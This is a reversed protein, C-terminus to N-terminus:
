RCAPRTRGPRCPPRRKRWTNGPRRRRSRSCCTRAGPKWRGQRKKSRRSRNPRAIARLSELTAQWIRQVRADEGLGNFSLPLGYMVYRQWVETRFETQMVTGAPLAPTFCLYLSRKTISVKARKCLIALRDAMAKAQRPVHFLTDTYHHPAGKDVRGECEFHRIDELPIPRPATKNRM